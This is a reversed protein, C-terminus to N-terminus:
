SIAGGLSMCSVIFCVVESGLGEFGVFDLRLLGLGGLLSGDFRVSGAGSVVSAMEEGWVGGTLGSLSSSSLLSSLWGRWSM